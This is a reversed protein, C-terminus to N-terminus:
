SQGWGIILGYLVFQLIHYGADILFIKPGRGTFTYNIAFSTAIWALGIYLSTTVASAITVGNGIFIAFAIASTIYCFLAIVHIYIGHTGKGKSCDIGTEKAWIEGFLKSSYWLGGAFYGALAAALATWLNFNEFM